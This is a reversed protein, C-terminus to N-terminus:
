SCTKPIGKGRAVLATARALAKAEPGAEAALDVVMAVV